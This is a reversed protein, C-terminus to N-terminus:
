VHLACVDGVETHTLTHTDGGLNHAITPPLPPFLFNAKKSFLLSM